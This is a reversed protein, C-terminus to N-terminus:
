AQKKLKSVRRTNSIKEQNQTTALIMRSHMTPSNAPPSDTATATPSLHCTVLSMLCAVHSVRVGSM